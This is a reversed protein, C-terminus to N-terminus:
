RSTSRAEEVAMAAIVGGTSVLQTRRKGKGAALSTNPLREGRGLAIRHRLAFPKRRREREHRLM